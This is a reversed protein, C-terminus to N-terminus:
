RRLVLLPCDTGRAVERFREPAEDSWVLALLDPELTRALRLIESAPVGRAILLRAPTTPHWCAITCLLRQRLEASFAPWEHQPQDVYRPLVMAGPESPRLGSADDILVVDLVAGLAKALDGAPELAAAMSPTGDIPVLIRRVRDLPVGRRLVLASARTEALTRAALEGLGSADRGEREASLVVFSSPQLRLLMQLREIPDGVDVDLVMGSLAAPDIQLLRPVECPTILTPWVFVGRLSAGLARAISRGAEIAALPAEAGSLSVIV